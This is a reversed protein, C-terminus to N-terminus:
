DEKIEEELWARIHKGLGAFCVKPQEKIKESLIDQVQKELSDNEGLIKNFHEWRKM